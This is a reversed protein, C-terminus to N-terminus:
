LSIRMGDFGPTIGHPALAETLGQHTLGGLHSHHTTVVVSSDTLVGMGRLREVVSICEKLDLHGHYTTRHLGETCEIVLADIRKGELFKWTPEQWYGTDSAYGITKEDKTILYNLSDEDLKHYAAFPTIGYDGVTFSEFSRAVQFEFPWEAYREALLQEAMENGYLTIPSATEPCFPFLLLQLEAIAFHDDHTHTFLISSWDAPRVNQSACQYWVDPGLDIRLHGDILAASRSRRDPGGNRRAYDSVDSDAFLAPIGDAAGTGQLLLEM